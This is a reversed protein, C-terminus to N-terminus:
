IEPAHVDRIHKVAAFRDLDQPPIGSGPEVRDAGTRFGLVFDEYQGHRLRSSAVQDLIEPLHEDAAPACSGHGPRGGSCEPRRRRTKQSTWVVWSRTMQGLCESQIPTFAYGPNGVLKTHTVPRLDGHGPVVVLVEDDPVFVPRNVHPEFCGVGDIPPPLILEQIEGRDHADTGIQCCCEGPLCVDYREHRSASCGDTTMSVAAIADDNQLRM